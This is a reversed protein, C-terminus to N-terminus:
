SSSYYALQKKRIVHNCYEIDKSSLIDKYGKVKGKRVKFSNQDSVKGPKLPKGYRMKLISSKEMLKMNEFRFLKVARKIKWKKVHHANLFQVISTLTKEADHKMEEYTIVLFDDFHDQQHLWTNQYDVLKGIGLKPDRVFDSLSGDFVDDQRKIAQYYSSVMIDRPDRLLLIIRKGKYFNRDINIHFEKDPMYMVNASDHRYQCHIRLYDLMVHLWTRGSKPYSVVVVDEYKNKILGRKQLSHYLNDIFFKPLFIIVNVVQRYWSNGDM